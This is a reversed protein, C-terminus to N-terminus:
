VATWGCFFGSDRIKMSILLLFDLTLNLTCSSEVILQRWRHLSEAEVTVVQGWMDHNSM